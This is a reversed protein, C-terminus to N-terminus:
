PYLVPTGPTAPVQGVPTSGLWRRLDSVQGGNTPEAVTITSDIYIITMVKRPSGSNNAGARHFTWGGHFSVEGLDYPTDDVAFGRSALESQLLKESTDSIPLDRGFEVRNSGAAFQLPGMEPGTPQLPIWVTISRDSSLPWYYQDAHWPTVGGGSEKYLAQDHYLRVSDVELLQAAIRALRASFVLRRVLDSHRWLNEVQLFARGYATREALPLHQTNLQVLKETIEPELERLADPDLVENLKVFGDRAFREVADAPLDYPAQLAGVLDVTNTVLAAQAAIPKSEVGQSVV